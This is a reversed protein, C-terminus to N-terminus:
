TIRRVSKAGKTAVINVPKQVTTIGIEDMNWVQRPSYYDESLVERYIKFFTAVQPCNFGVARLMSTISLTQNRQLFFSALWDKGAMKSTKCFRNLIKLKEVFDFVLRRVDIPTFGFLAKEMRQIHSVLMAELKGDFDPRFRGLLIADPNKVTGDRHRRLTKRPISYKISVTILPTGDQIRQLADQLVNAEYSARETKRKFVRPM